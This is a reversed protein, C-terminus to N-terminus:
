WRQLSAEIQWCCNCPLFSESSKNTVEHKPNCFEQMESRVQDKTLTFHTTKTFRCPQNKKEELLRQPRQGSPGLLQDVLVQGQFRQLHRGRHRQLDEWVAPVGAWYQSCQYEKMARKVATRSNKSRKRAEYRQGEKTEKGQRKKKRGRSQGEWYVWLCMTVTTTTSSKRQRECTYVPLPPVSPPVFDWLCLSARCTVKLSCM